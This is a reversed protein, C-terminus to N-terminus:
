KKYESPIVGVYEKFMKRFYDPDKYGVMEGVEYVLYRGSELLEKAKKIRYEGLYEKFSKEMNKQFINGLYNPTLFILKSLENLSIEKHYNEKIYALIQEMVRTNRNNSKQGINIFVGEFIDRVWTEIEQLTEKSEAFEQLKRTNQLIDPLMEGMQNLTTMTISLLENVILKIYDIRVYEQDRILAFMSDLCEVIMNKSRMKLGDILKSRDYFQLVPIALQTHVIDKYFIVKGVGFYPIYKLSEVSQEYSDKINFASVVTDGVGISISIDYLSLCRTIIQELKDMLEEDTNEGITLKFYLLFRAHREKFSSFTNRINLLECIMSVISYKLFQREEEKYKSLFSDYHDIQIHIVRYAKNKLDLELFDVKESFEPAHNINGEFLEEMFKEILVPMSKALQQKVKLEQEQKKRELDCIFVIKKLADTIDKPLVPKVIFDLVGYKMAERAYDFEGHGTLIVFKSSIGEQTLKKIMELGDMVPMNIDTLVIDPQKSIIKRFGDEGNFAVDLIDIGLEEWNIFKRISEIFYSHDDVIIMGYM